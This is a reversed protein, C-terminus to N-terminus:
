TDGGYQLSVYMVELGEGCGCTGEEVQTHHANSRTRFHVARDRQCRGRSAGGARASWSM